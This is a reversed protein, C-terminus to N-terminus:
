GEAPLEEKKAKQHRAFYTYGLGAAALAAAACVVTLVIADRCTYVMEAGDPRAFTLTYANIRNSYFDVKLAEEWESNIEATEEAYQEETEARLDFAYGDKCYYYGVVPLDYNTNEIFVYNDRTYWRHAAFFGYEDDTEGYYEMNYSVPRAALYVVCGLLLVFLVWCIFAKPLFHKKSM